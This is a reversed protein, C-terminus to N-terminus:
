GFPPNEEDFIYRVPSAQTPGKGTNFPSSWSTTLINIHPLRFPNIDTDGLGAMASTDELDISAYASM